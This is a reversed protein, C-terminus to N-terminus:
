KKLIWAAEIGQDLVEKLKLTAQNADDCSVISVLYLGKKNQGAITADFKKSKLQELLKEANEKIRFAGGIIFFHATETSKNENVTSVAEPIQKNSKEAVAVPQPAENLNVEPQAINKSAVSRSHAFVYAPVSNKISSISFNSLIETPFISSYNSTFNSIRNTNFLSWIAIALLPVAIAAVRKVAVPLHLGGRKDQKDQFGKRRIVPSVFTPLGYADELWNNAPKPKFIISSEHNTKLTGVGDLTVTKGSHIATYIVVVEEAIRHLAQDFSIGELSAIHTALLGDNQLISENFMIQRSPPTFTNQVPHICTPIYNAIFGGFGPIIVCDHQYLLAGIYYGIKM